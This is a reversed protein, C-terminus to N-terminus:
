KTSSSAAVKVMALAAACAAMPRHCSPAFPVIEVLATRRRRVVRRSPTM